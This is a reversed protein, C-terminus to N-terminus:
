FYSRPEPPNAMWRCQINANIIRKESKFDQYDICRSQLDRHAKHAKHADSCHVYTLQRFEKVGLSRLEKFSDGM